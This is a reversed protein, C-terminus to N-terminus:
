SDNEALFYFHKLSARFSHGKFRYSTYHEHTVGACLCM